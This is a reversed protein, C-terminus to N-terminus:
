FGGGWGGRGFAHAGCRPGWTDHKTIMSVIINHRTQLALWTGNTSTKRSSPLEVEMM